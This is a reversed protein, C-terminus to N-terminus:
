KRPRKGLFAPVDETAGKAKIRVGPQVGNTFEVGAAELARALSDLTAGRPARADREFDIITRLAVSSAEALEDRSWKL